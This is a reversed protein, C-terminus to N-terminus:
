KTINHVFINLCYNDVIENIDVFRVVM